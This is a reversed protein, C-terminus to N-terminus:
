WNLATSNNLLTTSYIFLVDQDNFDIFSSLYKSQVYRIDVVYIKKYGETFLPSLSSGFSDRFIILEKDTTANENEITLLPESGSMFFEYPDQSNAKDFNYVVSKKAMGTAYSKVVSNDIAENTLYYITDSKVNLASQGAYVGYFPVDLVNTKFNDEIKVGMESSLKKAIKVINEQKWHSDTKYYDDATLLPKIDIFKAYSMGKKFDSVFQNYDIALHGSKESLIINKDPIISFYINENNDKLYNEYIFNFKELAYSAMESNAPYEIKSIHGETTFLGNNDSKLLIKTSFVAKIRRFFDRKPFQDVTYDEFSKMFEGSFISEKSIEPFQALARRESNSIEEPAKFLCIASSFLLLCAFFIVGIKAKLKNM